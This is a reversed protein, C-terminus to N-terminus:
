DESRSYYDSENDGDYDEIHEVIMNEITEIDDLVMDSRDIRSGFENYAIFEINDIEEGLEDGHIEARAKITALLGNYLQLDFEIHRM